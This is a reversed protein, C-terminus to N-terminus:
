RGDEMKWQACCSILEDNESSSQVAIRFFRSDLGEFNSADRILIGHQRALYDKLEAATGQRLCCLLIHTDSPLTNCIGMAELAHGVRLREQILEKLPLRYLDRHATLWLGAEQALSNVSWPMRGQEIWRILKSCATLYGLRLGPIAYEKTMSHLMVVNPLGCAEAPTLLPQLTFPAYSADIVFVTDSHGVICKLLKERSVVTGTPNNPNCLWVGETGEPIDDLSRIFSVSHEHLRCADAYETFTPVVIATRWRRMAWATLYIAETAGNTVRVEDTGIGMQAALATELSRPVPEPYHQVISLREKLYAFLREHSFHNYVNSSFNLRIGAYSYTDDGHGDIM